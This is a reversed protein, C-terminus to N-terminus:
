DHEDTCVAHDKPAAEPSYLHAEHVQRENGFFHSIGDMVQSVSVLQFVQQTRTPRLSKTSSRATSAVLRGLHCAKTMAM